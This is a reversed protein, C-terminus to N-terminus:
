QLRLGSLCRNRCTMAYSRSSMPPYVSHLNQCHIRGVWDKSTHAIVCSLSKKMAFSLCKSGGSTVHGAQFGEDLLEIRLVDVRPDLWSEEVALKMQAAQVLYANQRLAREQAAVHRVLLM